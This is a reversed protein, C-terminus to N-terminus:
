IVGAYHPRPRFDSFSFATHHWCLHILPFSRPAADGKKEQIKLVNEYSGLGELRKELTILNFHLKWELPLTPSEAGKQIKGVLFCFYSKM